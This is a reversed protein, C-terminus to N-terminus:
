KTFMFYRRVADLEDDFEKRRGKKTKDEEGEEEDENEEEEDEPSRKLFYLMMFSLAAPVAVALLLNRITRKRALGRRRVQSEKPAVESQRNQILFNLPNFSLSPNEAPLPAAVALLTYRHTTNLDTRATAAAACLAILRFLNVM